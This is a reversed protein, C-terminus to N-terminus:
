GQPRRTVYAMGANIAEKPPPVPKEEGKFYIMAKSTRYRDPNGFISLALETRGSGMLGAFGVIEGKRVSFCRRQPHKAWAPDYASWDKVELIVEGLVCTSRPPYYQRDRTGVMHKILMNESVEGDKADLTCITKGDRLVTVTDAIDMVEKLKHSILICTVGQAKLDRLLNL